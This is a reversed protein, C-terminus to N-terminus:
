ILVFLVERKLFMLYILFFIVQHFSVQFFLVIHGHLHILDVLKLFLHSKFDLDERVLLTIELVTLILGDFLHLLFAHLKLGCHRFAGHYASCFDWGFEEPLEQLVM